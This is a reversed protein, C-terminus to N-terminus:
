GSVAVDILIPERRAALDSLAADLTACLQDHTEVRVAECGLGRAIQTIDLGKLSPWPARARRERAQADMAEYAGNDIVIWVVGIRYRAASWLAQIAYMASGDGIVGVVGRDPLGMRLGAAGPLGFGLEGNASSVFGLPARAPIRALLEPRSSPSEEVLVTDAPLRRALAALVHAASLPEGPAPPAPAAPRVLPTPYTEPRERLLGALAQCAGPVPAVVALECSSRHAEAPDDTLVAVRTGPAVPPGTDDLLYLRFAATGIVLLADNGALADRLLRRQWPLHGAFRPHDQPFGARRGFPEQWVLCRLRDALAAVAAFGAPSDTGGGVVIAPALAAELLAALGYLQAPDAAAANLVLDPPM